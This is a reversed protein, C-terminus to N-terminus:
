GWALQDQVLAETWGRYHFTGLASAVFAFSMIWFYIAGYKENLVAIGDPYEEDYQFNVEYNQNSPPHHFLLCAIAPPADASTIILRAQFM